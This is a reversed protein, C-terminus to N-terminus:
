GDDAGSRAGQADEVLPRLRRRARHLRSGVTGEPIGLARAIGAHDLGGWAHLLLVDRERDPMRALEARVADIGRVADLRDSAAAEDDLPVAADHFAAMGRRARADSRRHRHLLNTAIGLLWPLADPRELDYTTRREFAVLFTSSMVDDASTVGVARAAYRHVTPAHRDYLEAFARPTASSREIIDSDTSVDPIARRPDASECEM